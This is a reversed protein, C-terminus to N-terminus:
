KEIRCCATHMRNLAKKLLSRPCAFNLRVFGEMGFDKGDSLGVGADEFFTTPDDTDIERADIWALYTAEIHTTAIGPMGSVEDYVIDRNGRLYAILENYWTDCESYAAQMATVGLMNVYPMIGETAHNFKRRLAPNPIVAFGCNMGGLNYTKGPSMLTITRGAIEPALTAIPIHRRDEDLILGCHIEDSCLVLNHEISFAAIDELELRSYVRGVPNHPNCFMLLRTDPTIAKSMQDISFIWRSNERILPVRTMRCGSLPAVPFFLPYAPVLTFVTDGPSCVARCAGHLGPVLSPLLVIWEEEVQWDYLRELMAQIVGYFEKTPETYGMVGHDLQRRIADIIPPPTQFDMDAVWMPIIDRGAYENWKVSGSNRRDIEKDFNYKL